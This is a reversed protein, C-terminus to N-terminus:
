INVNLPVKPQKTQKYVSTHLVHLLFEKVWRALWGVGFKNKWKENELNGICKKL